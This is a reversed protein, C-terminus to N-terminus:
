GDGAEGDEEEYPEFLSIFTDFNPAIRRWYSGYDAWHIISPERANERFDFCFPAGAMTRGFQVIKSFDDIYPIFGPSTREKDTQSLVEEPSWKDAVGFNPALDATEHGIRELDTALDTESAVRELDTAFDAEFPNGYADVKGKLERLLGPEDRLFEVFSTPLELGNVTIM